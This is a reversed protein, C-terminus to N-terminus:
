GDRKPPNWDHRDNWDDHGHDNPPEASSSFRDNWDDDTATDSDSDSTQKILPTGRRAAPAKEALELQRNLRFANKILTWMGVLIGASAGILVGLHGTGRWRDFFWGILTAALVESAVTLGIGAMQWGVRVEEAESRTPSGQPPPSM